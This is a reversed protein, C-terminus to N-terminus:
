HVDDGPRMRFHFPNQWLRLTAQTAHGGSSRWRLGVFVERRDSLGPREGTARFLRLDDEGLKRLILDIANDLGHRGGDRRVGFRERAQRHFFGGEADDFSLTWFFRNADCRTNSNMLGM